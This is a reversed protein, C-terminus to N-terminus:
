EGAFENHDKWAWYIMKMTYILARLTSYLYFNLSFEFRESIINRFGHYIIMIAYVIDAGNSYPRFRQTVPLRKKNAINKRFRFLDIGAARISM